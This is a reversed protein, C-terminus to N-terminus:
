SPNWSFAIFFVSVTTTRSPKAAVARACTTTWSRLSVAAFSCCSCTSISFVAPVPTCTETSVRGTIPAGYLASATLSDTCTSASPFRM